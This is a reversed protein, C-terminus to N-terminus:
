RKSMCYGIILWENPLLSERYCISIGDTTTLECLIVIQIANSAFWIRICRIIKFWIKWRCYVCQQSVCLSLSHSLFDPLFISPAFILFSLHCWSMLVAFDLLALSLRWRLWSLWNELVIFKRLLAVVSSITNSAIRVATMFGFCYGLNLLVIYANAPLVASGPTFFRKHFM